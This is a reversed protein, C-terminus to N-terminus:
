WFCINNYIMGHLHPKKQYQVRTERVRAAINQLDQDTKTKRQDLRQMEVFAADVQSKFLGLKSQAQKWEGQPMNIQRSLQKKPAKM